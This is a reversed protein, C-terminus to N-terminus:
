FNRLSFIVADRKKRFKIHDADVVYVNLPGGYKEVLEDRIGLVEWNYKESGPIKIKYGWILPWWCLPNKGFFDATIFYGGIPFITLPEAWWPMFNFTFKDILHIIGWFGLVVVALIGLVVGFEDNFDEDYEYHSSFIVPNYKRTNRVRSKKKFINSM